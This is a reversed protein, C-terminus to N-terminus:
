APQAKARSLPQPDAVDGAAHRHRRPRSLQLRLRTVEVAASEARSEHSSRDLASPCDLRRGVDSEACRRCGSPQVHTRRDLRKVIYRAPLVLVPETAHSAVVGPPVDLMFQPRPQLLPSKSVVAVVGHQSTKEVLKETIPGRIHARAKSEAADPSGGFRGLEAGRESFRDAALEIGHEGNRMLRRQLGCAM